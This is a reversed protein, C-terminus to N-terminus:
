ITIKLARKSASEDSINMGINIKTGNKIRYKPFNFPLFRKILSLFFYTLVLEV